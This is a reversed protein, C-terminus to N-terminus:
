VVNGEHKFTFTITKTEGVELTIPIGLVERHLLVLTKSSNNSGTYWVETYFGVEGITIPDLTSTNTITLVLVNTHVGKIKANNVSFSHTQATKLSLYNTILAELRFDDETVPTRGSGFGIYNTPLGSSTGNSITESKLLAGGFYRLPTYMKEVRVNNVTTRLTDVLSVVGNFAQMEEPIPMAGGSLITANLMSRMNKLIM